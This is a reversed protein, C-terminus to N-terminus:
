KYLDHGTKALKQWDLGCKLANPVPGTVVLKSQNKGTGTRPRCLKPSKPVLGLEPRELFPLFVPVLGSRLASGMIDNSNM